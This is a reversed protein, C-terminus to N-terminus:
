AKWCHVGALSLRGRSQGRVLVLLLAGLVYLQLVSEPVAIVEDSSTFKNDNWAIFDAEDM